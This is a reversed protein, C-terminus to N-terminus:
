KLNQDAEETMNSIFPDIGEDESNVAYVSSDSSLYRSEDVNDRTPTMAREVEEVSTGEPDDVVLASQHLYTSGTGM